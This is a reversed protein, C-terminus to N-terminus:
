HFLCARHYVTANDRQTVTTTSAHCRGVNGVAGIKQETMLPMSTCVFVWAPDDLWAEDCTDLPPSFLLIENMSVDRGPTRAVFGLM